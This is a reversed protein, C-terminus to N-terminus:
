EVVVVARKWLADAPQQQPPISQILQVPIRKGAFPTLDVVAERWGNSSGADEVLQELVDLRVRGMGFFLAAALLQPTRM